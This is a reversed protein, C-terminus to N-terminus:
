RIRRRSLESLLIMGQSLLPALHLPCKFTCMMLKHVQASGGSDWGSHRPHLLQVALFAYGDLWGVEVGDYELLQVYAGM